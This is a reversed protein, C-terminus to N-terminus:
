FRVREVGHTKNGKRICIQTQNLKSFTGKLTLSKSNNDLCVKEMEREVAIKYGDLLDKSFLRNTTRGLSYKKFRLM